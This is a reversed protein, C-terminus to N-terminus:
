GLYDIRKPKEKILQKLDKMFDVWPEETMCFTLGNPNVSMFYLEDDKWVQITEGNYIDKIKNKKVM